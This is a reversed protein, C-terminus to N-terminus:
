MYLVTTSLYFVISVPGAKQVFAKAKYKAEIFTARAEKSSAENILV